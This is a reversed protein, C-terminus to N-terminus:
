VKQTSDYKFKFAIPEWAVEWPFGIDRAWNVAEEADYGRSKAFALWRDRMDLQGFAKDWDAPIFDKSSPRGTVAKALAGAEDDTLGCQKARMYYTARHVANDTGHPQAGSAAAEARAEQTGNSPTKTGRKAPQSSPVASAAAAVKAAADSVKTDKGSAANGDDDEAALGVTALLAYRRLYTVTSGIGQPDNKSPQAWCQSQIWEGSAHTLLTDLIVMNPREPDMGPAQVVAIGNDSLAKRCADWAAALDAYKSKFFPNDKDKLLAGMSGQAKSLAAALEKISESHTM